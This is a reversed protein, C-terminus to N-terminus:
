IQDLVEAGKGKDLSRDPDSDEGRKRNGREMVIISEALLVDTGPRETGTPM